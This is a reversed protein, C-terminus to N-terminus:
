WQQTEEADKKINTYNNIWPKTFKQHLETTGPWITRKEWNQQGKKNTKCKEWRHTNYKNIKPKSQYRYLENRQDLGRKKEWENIFHGKKERGKRQKEKKCSCWRPHHIQQPEDSMWTLVFDRQCLYPLMLSSLSNRWNPNPNPKQSLLTSHILFSFIVPLFSLLWYKLWLSVRAM